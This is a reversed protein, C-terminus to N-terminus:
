HVKGCTFDECDFTRHEWMVVDMFINLRRRCRKMSGMWRMLIESAIFCKGFATDWKITIKVTPQAFSNNHLDGRITYSDNPIFNHFWSPLSGFIEPGVPRSSQNQLLVEGYGCKFMLPM